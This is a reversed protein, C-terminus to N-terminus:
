ILLFEAEVESDRDLISKNRMLQIGECYLLLLLLLLLLFFFGTNDM